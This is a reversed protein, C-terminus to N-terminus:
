VKVWATKQVVQPVVEMLGQYFYEYDDFYSGARSMLICYFKENEIDQIIHNLLTEYKSDSHWIGDEIIKINDYFEEPLDDVFGGCQSLAKELQEKIM